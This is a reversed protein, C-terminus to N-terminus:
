MLSSLEKNVKTLQEYLSDHNDRSNTVVVLVGKNGVSDIILRSRDLELSINELKGKIGYSASEAASLLIAAMAIFTELHVGPPPQGAIHTGTKTIVLSTTIKPNNNLKGLIKNVRENTAMLNDEKFTNM